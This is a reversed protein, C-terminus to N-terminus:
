ESFGFGWAEIQSLVVTDTVPYWGATSDVTRYLYVFARIRPGWLTDSVMLGEIDILHSYTERFNSVARITSDIWMTSWFRGDLSAQLGIGVHASDLIMASDLGHGSTDAEAHTWDASTDVDAISYRVLIQDVWGFDYGRVNPYYTTDIWEQQSQSNTSDKDFVGDSTNIELVIITEDTSDLFVHYKPKARPLDWAFTTSAVFMLVALILVTRKM